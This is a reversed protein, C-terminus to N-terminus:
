KNKGKKPQGAGYPTGRGPILDWSCSCGISRSHCHQIREGGTGIESYWLLLEKKEKEKKLNLFGFGAVRVQTWVAEGYPCILASAQATTAVM